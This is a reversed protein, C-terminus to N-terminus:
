TGVHQERALVRNGRTLGSRVILEEARLELTEFALKLPGRVLPSPHHVEILSPEDIEDLQLAAGLLNLTTAVLQMVLTLAERSLATLEGFVVKQAVSDRVEAFANHIAYIREVELLTLAEQTEDDFLHADL